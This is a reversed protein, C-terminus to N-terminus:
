NENDISLLQDFRGYINRALQLDASLAHKMSLKLSTLGCSHISFRFLFQVPKFHSLFNLEVSGFYKRM